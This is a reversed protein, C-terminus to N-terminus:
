NKENETSSPIKVEGEEVVKYVKPYFSPSVTINTLIEYATKVKFYHLNSCNTCECNGMEPNCTTDMAMEYYGLDPLTDFFIRERVLRNDKVIRQILTIVIRKDKLTDQKIFLSVSNTQPAPAKSFTKHATKEVCGSLLIAVLAFIAFTSKM